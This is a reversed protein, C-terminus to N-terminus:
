NIWKIVPDGKFGKEWVFWAYAVASSTISKFDGNIACILRSSSVYVTKPPHELFFPKRAKGELFQLKLFMAVKHGTQVSNLAQQVFELAYKYPPNTIIDGEFDDFTEKLFDMPEPDGYGRYILDTSIVEHGHEELVKSLHGEGCACEWIVSSFEENELLLEMALPETAYYDNQQRDKDTHNSAGLTVYISHSDGKWDDNQAQKSAQKSAISM